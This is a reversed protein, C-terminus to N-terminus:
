NKFAQFKYYLIFHKYFFGYRLLSYLISSLLEIWHSFLGFDHHVGFAWHILNCVDDTCVFLIWFGPMSKVYMRVKPLLFWCGGFPIFTILWWWWLITFLNITLTIIITDSPKYFWVFVVLTLFSLSLSNLYLEWSIVRYVNFDITTFICSAIM